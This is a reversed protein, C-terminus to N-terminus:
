AGLKVSLAKREDEKLDWSWDHCEAYAPIPTGKALSEKIVSVSLACTWEKECIPCKMPFKLLRETM